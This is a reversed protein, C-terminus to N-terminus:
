GDGSSLSCVRRDTCTYTNDFVRITREELREIIIVTLLTIRLNQQFRTFYSPM